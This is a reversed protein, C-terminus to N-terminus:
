GGGLASAAQKAARLGSALAGEITGNRGEADTAEGAFFLTGEVPRALHRAADAGGVLPYSYTGRSWPDEHWPHMWLDLVASDIRRRSVSLQNALSRLATDEIASRGQRALAEAPPGGSWAVALPARAPYASWWVSFAPDATHLFGLRELSRGKALGPLPRTWPLDQFWVSLHVATGMELLELAQRVRRPMEPRFLLGGPEEPPLKLVSIPVTVIVARATVRSPLDAGARVQAKTQINLEVQGRSWDIGAVPTELHVDEELRHAMWDVMSGYGSAVRGIRRATGSPAEGGGPALSKASLRTGDAANFGEVFRLAAKRDRARSKGGPRGALFDTFSQDPEDPDILGLVRDIGSWVDQHPLIRGNEARWPEGALDLALLGAERLIRDTEPTEGHLLEAGMEIPLPVRDDHYTLVRGGVRDRAEFVATRFGSRKLEVAAALGAVGAGVVAVDLQDM